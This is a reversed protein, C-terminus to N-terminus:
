VGLGDALDLLPEREEVVDANVLGAPRGPDTLDDLWVLVDGQHAVPQVRRNQVAQLQHLLVGVDLGHAGGLDEVDENQPLVAVALQQRRAQPGQGTGGDRTQPGPLSRGDDLDRLEVVVVVAGGVDEALQEVGFVHRQADVLPLEVVV